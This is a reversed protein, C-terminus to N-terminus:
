EKKRNEDVLGSSSLRRVERKYEAEDIIGAKKLDELEKRRSDLLRRVTDEASAQPSSATDVAKDHAPRIRDAEEMKALAAALAYAYAKKWCEHKSKQSDFVDMFEWGSDTFRMDEREGVPLLYSLGLSSFTECVDRKVVVSTTRSEDVPLTSVDVTTKREWQNWLPIIGLTFISLAADPASRSPPLYETYTIKIPIGNTSFTEPHEKLIEDFWSMLKSTDTKREEEEGGRMVHREIEAINYKHQTRGASTVNPEYSHRYKQCCAGCCLLVVVAYYYKM